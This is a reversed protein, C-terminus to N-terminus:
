YENCSGAVVVIDNFYQQAGPLGALQAVIARRGSPGSSLFQNLKNVAIPNGAIQAAAGPDTQNLAAMVQGYNCTTNYAPDLPDASAIGAGATLGVAVGVGGVAAAFKMKSLRM